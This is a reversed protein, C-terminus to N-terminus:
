SIKFTEKLVSKIQEEDGNSLLNNWDGIKKGHYLTNYVKESFQNIKVHGIRDMKAYNTDLRYNNFLGMLLRLKDQYDRLPSYKKSNSGWSDIMKKAEAIKKQEVTADNHAQWKYGNTNTQQLNRARNSTDEPELVIYSPIDHYHTDRAKAVSDGSIILVDIIKPKGFIVYEPLWAIMSVYTNDNVFHLQSDKFRATIETALPFWAKVEFGPTPKVIGNFIVDPFGPDQRKWNGFDVFENQLNLFDCTNFEILNGVLPSLKSVVKALNVAADASLPKSVTLIDFVHGSLSGLHESAKSIVTKTDM